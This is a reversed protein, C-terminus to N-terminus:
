NTLSEVEPAASQISPATSFTAGNLNIGLGTVTNPGNQPSVLEAKEEASYLAQPSNSAMSASAGGAVLGRMASMKGSTKHYVDQTNNLSYTASKGAIIGISGGVLVADQNAGIYIFDWSYKETQHKVMEAVKAQTFEKSSNELGDTAIVFSVLGPRNEEKLSGLFKGAEVIGRGVADFLPTGGRPELKYNPTVDKLDKCNHVTEYSDDSDFQVLTLTARGPQEKQERILANIGGEADTKISEMSGSRDVILVIHTYNKDM